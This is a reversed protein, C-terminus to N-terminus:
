ETPQTLYDETPPETEVWELIIEDETETWRPTWYGEEPQPTEVLPKFGHEMAYEEKTGNYGAPVRYLRRVGHETLQAYTIPRRLSYTSVETEKGPYLFDGTGENYFSTKSVLDFMCPAGTSDLCPVLDYVIRDSIWVKFYKKRGLFPYINGGYAAFVDLVTYTSFPQKSREIELVDNEFFQLRDKEFILSKKNFGALQRNTNVVEENPFGYYKLGEKIVGWFFFPNTNSLEANNVNNTGTKPMSHLTEIRLTEYRNEFVFPLRIHSCNNIQGNASELWEVRKFGALLGGLVGLLALKQQPALKFVERMTADDDSLYVTSGHATFYGDPAYIEKSWGSDDSVTCGNATHVSYTKGSNTPAEKM